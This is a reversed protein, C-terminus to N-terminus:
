PKKGYRVQMQYFPLGGMSGLVRLVRSAASEKGPIGVGTKGRMAYGLQKWRYSPVYPLAAEPTVLGLLGISPPLVSEAVALGARGIKQAIGASAPWLPQDFMGKPHEIGLIWPQVVYDFIVQGIPDKFFPIKDIIEAVEGGFREEYTRGREQLFLLGLHPAMNAINLYLPNKALFPLRVMGPSNLWSYYQSELAKKETPGGVSSLEKLFFQLKNFFAPNYKLTKMASTGMAYTFSGFPYGILPITRMMKVFDPLALYNLFMETTIDIAKATNLKWLDRGVVAAADKAGIMFRPAMRLLDKEPIGDVVYHIITGLRWAQDVTGYIGMSSTIVKHYGSAFINGREGMTKLWKMFSGFPGKMIEAALFATNPGGGGVGMATTFGGPLKVKGFTANWLDGVEKIDKLKHGKSMVDLTARGRLIIDPDVGTMMAFITQDKIIGNMLDDSNTIISMIESDMNKTILMKGCQWVRKLHLPTLSGGGGSVFLSNGVTAVPMSAPNTWAGVKASKFVGIFKAWFDLITRGPKSLLAKAVVKNYSDIHKTSYYEFLQHFEKLGEESMGLKKLKTAYKPSTLIKKLYDITEKITRQFHQTELSVSAVRAVNDAGDASRFMSAVTKQSKLWNSVEKRALNMGKSALGVDKANDAARIAANYGIPDYHFLNKTDRGFRTKEMWNLTRTGLPTREAIKTLMKPIEKGIMKQYAVRSKFGEMAINKYAAAFKTTPGAADFAKKTLGPIFKGIAEARTLAQSKLALAVGKPGGKYAGSILRPITARTGLTAWAIPDLGIDLAFGLPVAALNNVGYSRLLDGATGEEEINAKINEILGPETGKGLATELAGVVTYLPAGMGHLFKRLYSREPVSEEISTDPYWEKKLRETERREQTGKLKMLQGELFVDKETPSTRATKSRKLLDQYKKIASTLNDAM